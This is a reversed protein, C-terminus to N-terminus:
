NRKRSFLPVDKLLWEEFLEGNLFKLGGQDNSGLLAEKNKANERSATIDSKRV